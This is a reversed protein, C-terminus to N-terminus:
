PYRFAREFWFLLERAGVFRTCSIVTVTIWGKTVTTDPPITYTPFSREGEGVRSFSMTLTYNVDSALIYDSNEFPEAAFFLNGGDDRLETQTLEWGSERQCYPTSFQAQRNIQFTFQASHEAGECATMRSSCEVFHFQVTGSLRGWDSDGDFSKFVALKESVSLVTGLEQRCLKAFNKPAMSSFCCLKLAPLIKAKLTPGHQSNDGDAEVQFVGWKLISAVLQEELLNKQRLKLFELVSEISLKLWHESALAM